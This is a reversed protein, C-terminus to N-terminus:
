YKSDHKFWCNPRKCLAGYRCNPMKEMRGNYQAVSYYLLPIGVNQHSYPYADMTPSQGHCSCGSLGGFGCQGFMDHQQDSTANRGSTAYIPYFKKSGDNAFLSDIQYLEEVSCRFIEKFGKRKGMWYCSVSNSCLYFNLRCKCKKFSSIESVANPVNIWGHKEALFEIQARGISSGINNTIKEAKSHPESLQGRMIMSLRRRTSVQRTKDLDESPSRHDEQYRLDFENTGVSKLDEESLTCFFGDTMSNSFGKTGDKEHLSDAMSSADQFCWSVNDPPINEPHDIDSRTKIGESEMEMGCDLENQFGYDLPYTEEEGAFLPTIPEPTITM